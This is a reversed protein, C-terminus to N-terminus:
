RYSYAGTVIQFGPKMKSRTYPMTDVQKIYCPATPLGIKQALQMCFAENFVLSPFRPNGPKLIHTSPAGDLPIAIAENQICVSLKTQAGALSLRMHTEGALLPRIPLERLEKALEVETLVKYTYPAQQPVEGEPLFTLAGTCDGGLKKLCPFIMKQALASTKQM